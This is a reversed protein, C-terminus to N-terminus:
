SAEAIMVRVSRAPVSVELAGGARVIRGEGMADVLAGVGALSARAVVDIATPNMVFVVRAVGAADEHVTVHADIPDVPWTPLALDDIRRAVLADARALDELPEVEFGTVDVPLRLPQMGGDLEPIRPGITVLIGSERAARLSDVFHPKLGGASACVIWRAGATSHAVTEGGAYAFPVGRAHLAREFARLYAEAAMVPPADLGFDRELVTERWGVGAVNFLAPTLPGFAHTVRALRRLARPVVLRVPARRRLTHFATRELAVLLRAYRAALPRPNGHPDIPAGVWRDREVAMYLNFGRLGYALACMLAYMSDNEDLPNFFPPFGAGV